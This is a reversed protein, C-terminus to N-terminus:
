YPIIIRFIYTSTFNKKKVKTSSRHGRSKQPQDTSIGMESVLKDVNYADMMDDTWYGFCLLLFSQLKGIVSWWVLQGTRTTIHGFGIVTMFLALISAPPRPIHKSSLYTMMERYELYCLTDYRPMTHRQFENWRSNEENSRKQFVSTIYGQNSCWGYQKVAGISENKIQWGESSTDFIIDISASTDGQKRYVEHGKGAGIGKMGILFFAGCEDLESSLFAESAGYCMLAEPLSNLLRSAKGPRGTTFVAVISQSSLKNLDNVLDKANGLFDSNDDSSGCVNYTRCFTTLNTDKDIVVLHYANRHVYLQYRPVWIHVNDYDANSSYLGDELKSQGYLGTSVIRFPGKVPLAKPDHVPELTTVGVNTRLPVWKGEHPSM